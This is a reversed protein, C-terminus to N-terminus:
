TYQSFDFTLSQIPTMRHTLHVWKHTQHNWLKYAKTRHTNYVHYWYNIVTLADEVTDCKNVLSLL